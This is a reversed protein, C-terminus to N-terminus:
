TMAGQAAVAAREASAPQGVPVPDQFGMAHPRMQGPVSDAAAGDGRDGDAGIGDAEDRDPPASQPEARVDAANGPAPRAGNAPHVMAQTASETADTARLPAAKGKSRVVDSAPPLFVIGTGGGAQDVVTIRADRRSLERMLDKYNGLGFFAGSGNRKFGEIRELEALARKQAVYNQPQGALLGAVRAAAADIGIIPGPRTQPKLTEPPPAVAVRPMKAMSAPKLGVDRSPTELPKRQFLRGFFGRRVRQYTAAETLRRSAILVDANLHYTTHINPRHETAVIASRKGKERLRELVPVFDSDGTLLIYEDIESRRYTAEIVDMAMRIDAGNKLGSFKGILIPVFGHREFVDRNKETHSNWYVRKQLFRRRRGHKEFAGDELWALWSAISDPSLPVNEFDIYLASRVPWRLM